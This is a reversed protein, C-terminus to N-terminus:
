CTVLLFVLSGVRARLQSNPTSRGPAGPVSWSRHSPSGAKISRMICSALVWAVAPMPRVKNSALPDVGAHACMQHFQARFV